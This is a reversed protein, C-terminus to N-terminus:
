KKNMLKAIANEYWDANSISFEYQTTPTEIDKIHFKITGGKVLVKHLKRSSSKNLSLRDSYNVATLSLRGGDKDQILVSYSDSSIAKVPNNRAYEYLQISIDSPNGILLDVKLDSNQTATNSFMGYIPSTNTIYGQKTPEGFEDVYFRVSWMGTNNINELRIREKEAIERQIKQENEKKEIDKILEKYEANKTSEPHKQSLLEINRRAESYNNERYSKEVLAILKEAGNNCDDLENKLKENESKLKDYESKPVGCSLVSIMVLLSLYLIKNKM